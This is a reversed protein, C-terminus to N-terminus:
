SSWLVSCSWSWFLNKQLL